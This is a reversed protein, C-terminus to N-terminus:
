FNKALSILAPGLVVVFMAPFICLVTPILMKVPAKMAQEEAAVQRRNRSEQAQVRLMKGLPSGLQDAQVLSNVVSNIEPLDVREAMKRLAVSRAEGIRLEGLVLSFEDVIPGEMHEALKGLAADFGLGAEVSVAVIDLADPLQRQMESRRARTRSNAMIDPVIFGAFGLAAGFLLAKLSSDLLVGFLGGSIVGAAALVVKLALYGNATLQRAMGSTVLKTAIREETLRPDLRRAIKALTAGYREELRDALQGNSDDLMSDDAGRARRLSAQKDRAPQTVLKGIVAMSATLCLFALILLM